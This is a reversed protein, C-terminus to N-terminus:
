RTGCTWIALSTGAEWHAQIARLARELDAAAWAAGESCEVCSGFPWSGEGTARMMSRAIAEAEDHDPARVTAGYAGQEDDDDDWNILISFTKLEM